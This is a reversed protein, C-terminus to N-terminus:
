YHMEGGSCVRTGKAFRIQAYRNELHVTERRADTLYLMGQSGVHMATLGALIKAILDLRCEVRQLSDTYAILGISIAVV